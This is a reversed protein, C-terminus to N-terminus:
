KCQSKDCVYGQEELQSIFTDRANKVAFGKTILEGNEDYYKVWWKAIYRSRATLTYYTKPSDVNKTQKAIEDQVVDLEANTIPQVKIRESMYQSTNLIKM